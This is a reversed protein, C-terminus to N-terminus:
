RHLYFRSLTTIEIHCQLQVIEISIAINAALIIALM